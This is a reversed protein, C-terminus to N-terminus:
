VKCEGPLPMRDDRERRQAKRTDGAIEWHSADNIFPKNPKATNANIAAPTADLRGSADRACSGDECGGAAEGLYPGSMECYQPPQWLSRVLAPSSTSVLMSVAFM